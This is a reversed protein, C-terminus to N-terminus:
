FGAQTAESPDKETKNRLRAATKGQAEDQSSHIGNPSSTPAWATQIQEKLTLHQIKRRKMCGKVRLKPRAASTGSGSHLDM